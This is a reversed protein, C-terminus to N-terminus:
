QGADGHEPGTDDDDRAAGMKVLSFGLAAAALSIGGLVVFLVTGEGEGPGRLASVLFMANTATCIGGGLLMIGGLGILIVKLVTNM